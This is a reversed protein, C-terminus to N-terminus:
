SGSDQEMERLNRSHMVTRPCGRALGEPYEGPHSTSPPQYRPREGLPHGGGLSCSLFGTRHRSRLRRLSPGPFESTPGSKGGDGGAGLVTRRKLIFQPKSQCGRRRVLSLLKQGEPLHGHLTDAGEQPNQTNNQNQTREANYVSSACVSDVLGRAPKEKGSSAGQVLTTNTLNWRNVKRPRKHRPRLGLFVNGTVFTM